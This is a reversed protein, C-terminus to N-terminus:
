GGEKGFVCLCKGCNSGYEDETQRIKNVTGAIDVM